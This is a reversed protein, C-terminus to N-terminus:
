RRNRRMAAEVKSAEIEARTGNARQIAALLWASQDLAGGAHPMVGLTAMDALVCVSTMERSYLM